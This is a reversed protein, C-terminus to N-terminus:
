LVLSYFGIQKLLSVMLDIGKKHLFNHIQSIRGQMKEDENNYIEYPKDLFLLNDMVDNPTIEKEVRINDDVKIEMFTKKDKENYIIGTNKDMRKEIQGITAKEGCSCNYTQKLQTNCKNCILNGGFGYDDNVSKKIKIPLEVITTKGNETHKWEILM